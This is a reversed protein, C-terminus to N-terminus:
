TKDQSIERLFEALSPDLTRLSRLLGKLHPIAANLETGLVGGVPQGFDNIIRWVATASRGLNIICQGLNNSNWYFSVIQAGPLKGTQYNLPGVIWNLGAHRNVINMRDLRIWEEVIRISERIRIENFIETHTIRLIPDGLYVQQSANPLDQVGPWTHFAKGPLLAIRSAPTKGQWGAQVACLLNWTSYVDMAGADRDAVCILLPNEQNTIWEIEYQKEYIIADTNSKAQVSFFTGAKLLSAEGYGSILSCMFDIGIDEQRPVPTTFAIGTLLHQILLESRDGLRFSRQRVGPM